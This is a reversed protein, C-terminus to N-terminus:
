IESEVIELAKRLEILRAHKYLGSRTDKDIDQLEKELEERIVQKQGSLAKETEEKLRQNFWVHHKIHHDKCLWIIELAYEYGFHHHAQAAKGCVVCGQRKVNGRAIENTLRQRARRKIGYRNKDKYKRNYERAQELNGLRWKLTSKRACKKCQGAKGDKSYSYNHFEDTPKVEKCRSCKKEKIIKQDYTM